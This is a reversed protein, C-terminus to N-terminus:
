SPHWSPRFAQAAALRRSCGRGAGRPAAWPAPVGTHRTGAKEYRCGGHLQRLARTTGAPHGFSGKMKRPLGWRRVPPICRAMGHSSASSKPATATRSADGKETHRQGWGCLPLNARRAGRGSPVNGALAAALPSHPSLSGASRAQNRAPRRSAGWPPVRQERPEAVGEEGAGM